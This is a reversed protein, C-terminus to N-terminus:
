EHEEKIVPEVHSKSAIYESVVKIIGCIPVAIIFGTVGLLKGFFLMSALILLPHIEIEKGMIKPQLINQQVFQLIANVVIIILVTYYGFQLDAAISVSYVVPLLVGILPGIYPVIDLFGLLFGFLISYEGMGVLYFFVTFVISMISMSFIRGKFFKEIVENSKSGVVTFEERYKKPIVKSIGNFIQEKDYLLFYLFIPVLICIMIFNTFSSIGSIIIGFTVGLIDKIDDVNMNYILTMLEETFKDLSSLVDTPLYQSLFVEIQDYNNVILDYFINGLFIFVFLLLSIIFIVTIIMTLIVSINKNFKCKQEFLICIPSILYSIFLAILGPIVVIKVANSVTLITQPFVLKCLFMILLILVVFAMNKIWKNLDFKMKYGRRMELNNNINKTKQKFLICM